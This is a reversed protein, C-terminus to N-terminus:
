PTIVVGARAMSPWAFTTPLTGLSPSIVVSSALVSAFYGCVVVIALCSIQSYLICSM